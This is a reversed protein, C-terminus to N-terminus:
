GDQPVGPLGAFVGTLPPTIIVLHSTPVLVAGTFADHAPFPSPLCDNEEVITYHVLAPSRQQPAPEKRKQPGSEVQDDNRTQVYKYQM